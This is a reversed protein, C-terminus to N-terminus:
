EPRVGGHDRRMDAGGIGHRRLEHDLCKCHGGHGCGRRGRTLVQYVCPKYNENSEMYTQIHESETTGERGTIESGEGRMTTYM